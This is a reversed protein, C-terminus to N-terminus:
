YCTPDNNRWRRPADGGASRARPAKGGDGEKGRPKRAPPSRIDAVDQMASRDQTGVHQTLGKRHEGTYSKCNALWRNRTLTLM